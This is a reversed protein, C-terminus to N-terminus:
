AKYPSKDLLTIFTNFVNEGCTSIYEISSAKISRDKISSFPTSSYPLSILAFTKFHTPIGVLTPIADM